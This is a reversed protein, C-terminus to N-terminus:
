SEWSAISRFFWELKNTKDSIFNTNQNQDSGGKQPSNEKEIPKSSFSHFSIYSTTMRLGWYLEGPVPSNDYFGFAKSGLLRCRHLTLGSLPKEKQLALPHSLSQSCVKRSWLHSDIFLCSSLWMAPFSGSGWAWGWTGKNKSIETWNSLQSSNTEKNERGKSQM